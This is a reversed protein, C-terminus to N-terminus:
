RQGGRDRRLDLEPFVAELLRALADATRLKRQIFALLGPPYFEEPAKPGKSSNCTRCLLVANGASIPTGKAAPHHHDITLDDLVGCRVCREDFLKWTIRYALVSYDPVLGLRRDAARKRNASDLLQLWRAEPSGPLRRRGASVWQNFRRERVISSKGFCPKCYGHSHHPRRRTRCTRCREHVLWSGDPAISRGWAQPRDGPGVMEKGPPKRNGSSSIGRVQRPADMDHGHGEHSVCTPVAPVRPPFPPNGGGGGRGGDGPRAGTRATHGWPAAPTAPEAGTAAVMSAAGPPAWPARRVLPRTREPGPPQLPADALSPAPFRCDANVVPAAEAGAVRRFEIVRPDGIAAKNSFRCDPALDTSRRM